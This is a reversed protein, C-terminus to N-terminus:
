NASNHLKSFAEMVAFNFKGHEFTGSEPVELGTDIEMYKMLEDFSKGIFPNNKRLKDIITQKPKAKIILRDIRDM